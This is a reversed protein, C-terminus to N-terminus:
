QQQQQKTETQISSLAAEQTQTNKREGAMAATPPSPTRASDLHMPSNERSGASPVTFTNGFPTHAIPTPYSSSSPSAQPLVVPSAHAGARLPMHPHAAPAPFPSGSSVSASPAGGSPSASVAHSSEAAVPSAAGHFIRGSAIPSAPGNHQSAMPSSAAASPPAAVHAPTVPKMGRQANQQLHMQQQLQLRLLDVSNLDAVGQMAGSQPSQPMFPPRQQQQQQQQQQFAAAQAQLLATVMQLQGITEPTPAQSQLFQHLTSLQSLSLNKLQAANPPFVGASAAPHSHAHPHPAVMPQHSPSDFSGGTPAAGSPVFPAASASPSFVPATSKLSSQV